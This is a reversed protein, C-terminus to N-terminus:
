FIFNEEITFNAKYYLDDGPWDYSQAVPSRKINIM